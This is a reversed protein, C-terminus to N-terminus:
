KGMDDTEVPVSGKFVVPGFVYNGEDIPSYPLTLSYEVYDTGNQRTLRRSLAFLARRKSGSMFSSFDFFDPQRTYDNIAFGPRKNQILMKNLIQNIDPGNLGPIGEMVLWPITLVPANDPFIPEAGAFKGSLRKIQVTLTIDFPEDILVTESSSTIALTVLDQKEIDTVTLSPGEVKYSRGNVTVITPGARFPGAALPTIEYSIILGSFGQRTM